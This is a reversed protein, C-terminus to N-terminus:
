QFVPLAAKRSDRARAMRPLIESSAREIDAPFDIEIWSMGTIDEFSFTGRQSTLLVDRIAEEYPEHRRGQRL